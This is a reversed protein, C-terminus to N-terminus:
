SLVERVTGHEVHFWGPSSTAVASVGHLTRPDTSTVFRQVDLRTLLRSLRELYATGLEAGLDDVLLVGGDGTREQHLTMQGLIMCAALVKEQGRSVVSQASGEGMRVALDARHPGVTTFGAARDRDSSAHLAEELDAYGSFGPVYELSPKPGGMVKAATWSVWPELRSVYARRAEAIREGTRALEGDWARAARQDGARLAANRQRLVKQFSRHNGWFGQEVHFAGWDMYRRRVEPSGEILEHSQPAIVQVPLLRALEGMGKVWEGNLRGRTGGPGHEMGIWVRGRGPVELEATVQCVQRGVAVLPGRQGQRFSRGRGLFYIAELLSTKGSANDGSILNTGPDASLGVDHFCRFGSVTLSEIATHGAGRM